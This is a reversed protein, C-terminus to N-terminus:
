LVDENNLYRLNFLIQPNEEKFDYVSEIVERMCKAINFYDFDSSLFKAFTMIKSKGHLEEIEIMEIGSQIYNQYSKNKELNEKDLIFFIVYGDKYPKSDVKAVKFWSPVFKLSDVQLINKQKYIMELQVRSKKSDKIFKRVFQNPNKPLIGLVNKIFDLM